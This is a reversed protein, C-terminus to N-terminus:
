YEYYTKVKYKKFIHEINKTINNSKLFQLLKKIKENNIDENTTIFLILGRSLNSKFIIKTKILYTFLKIISNTSEQNFFYKIAISCLINKKDASICETKIFEKIEENSELYLFEKIINEVLNNFSNETDYENKINSININIDINIDDDFLNELLIKDRMCSCLKLKSLIKDKFIDIDKKNFWFAIDPIYKNQELLINNINEKINESFFNKFIFYKIIKLTNIRYIEDKYNSIFTFNNSLKIDKYDYYVKNKLINIFFYPEINLKNYVISFINIFINFYNDIMNIEKVLKTFFINQVLEYEEKTEININQLFEIILKNINDNSVKNLILIIKNEIKNKNLQFNNNKLINSSKKYKKNKFKINSNSFLNNIKNIIKEDLIQYTTNNKLKLLQISNM